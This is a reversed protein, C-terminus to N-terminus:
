CFVISYSTFIVALTCLRVCVSIRGGEVDVLCGIVSGPKFTMKSFPKSTGATWRQSNSLSDVGDVAYTRKTSGLGLCPLTKTDGSTVQASALSLIPKVDTDVAAWGIQVYSTRVSMTGVFVEYYAAGDTVPMNLRVTQIEAGRNQFYLFLDPPRKRPIEPRDEDLKEVPDPLTLLVSDFAIFRYGWEQAVTLTRAM